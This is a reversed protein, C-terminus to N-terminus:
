CFSFARKFYYTDFQEEFYEWYKQELLYSSRFRDVKGSVHRLIEIWRWMSYISALVKQM